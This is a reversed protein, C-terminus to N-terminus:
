GPYIKRGQAAARRIEAKLAERQAPTANKYDFRSVSPAQSATGAEDPRHTGSQIANSIMEQAKQAAVQMSQQQMEKFHVANFAQEVSLGVGPSTLRAFTPNQMEARLDFNPIVAKLAQAQQELKLIHNQFKQQELNRQQQELMMATETSVGMELAKNEYEGTIMKVLATHDLNEPDLGHQTALHKLAPALTELIAKSQGDEKVRSKVIKQIEANYEPDKVIEDWSMRTPTNETQANPEASATQVASEHAQVKPQQMQQQTRFAGEPLPSAQRAKPKRIKSEPVGLERLRQHGADASNDGTAAGEANGGDGAASAGSAGGEGGFLQLLQWKKQNLM